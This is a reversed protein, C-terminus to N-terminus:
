IKLLQIAKQRQSALFVLSIMRSLSQYILILNSATIIQGLGVRDVYDVLKGKCLTELHEFPFEKINLDEQAFQKISTSYTDTILYVYVEKADPADLKAENLYKQADSKKFANVSSKVQVASLVKGNRYLQIDIKNQKPPEVKIEDWDNRELCDILAVISQFIYGRSGYVGGNNM